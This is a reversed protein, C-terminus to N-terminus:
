NCKLQWETATTRVIACVFCILIFICLRFFVLFVTCVIGFVTFVVVCIMLVDVGPEVSAYCVRQKCCLLIDIDCLHAECRCLYSLAALTLHICWVSVPALLKCGEQLRRLARWTFLTQLLVLLLLPRFPWATSNRGWMLWPVGLIFEM